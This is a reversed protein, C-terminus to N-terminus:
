IVEFSNVQSDYIYIWKFTHLCIVSLLNNGNCLLVQFCKVTHLYRPTTAKSFPAKLDGEVVTVM